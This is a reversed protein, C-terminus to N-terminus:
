EFITMINSFSATPEFRLYDKEQRLPSAINNAYLTGTGLGQPMTLNYASVWQAIANLGINSELASTAWWGIEREKAMAIWRDAEALGGCLAPKLIIYQPQITDLMLQKEEDNHVGILEEDLAIAIPSLRCLRAMESTQGPKIPQEISHITFDSLRKLRELANEGTFAGNADLRLELDEPSFQARIFQLLDTEEEFDIGGIKLKICRFGKELKEEIRRRMTKKDGMWVLGNITITEDGCTFPTAALIQRGGNRLDTMATEMGFRISSIDPMMEPDKCAETLYTEYAPTDEASLGRFLACEGFGSVEPEADDWVRVFFTEKVDMKARSTIATELFKLEYRRWEAKLM